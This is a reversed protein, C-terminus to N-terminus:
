AKRGTLKFLDAEFVGDAIKTVGAMNENIYDNPNDSFVSEGTNGTRPNYEPKKNQNQKASYPLFLGQYGCGISNKIAEYANAGFDCLQKINLELTKKTLRLQRKLKYDVWELWQSKTFHLVGGKSQLDYLENAYDLLIDKSSKKGKQSKKLDGFSKTITSKTITSEKNNYITDNKYSDFTDNKYSDFTGSMKVFECLKINDIKYHKTRNLGGSQTAKFIGVSEFFAISKMITRRDLGLDASIKDVKCFFCDSGNALAFRELDVFYALITAKALGFIKVSAKPLQWFSGKFLELIAIDYTSNM